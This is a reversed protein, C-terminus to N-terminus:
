KAPPDFSIKYPFFNQVWQDKYIRVSDIQVIIHVRALKAELSDIRARLSDLPTMAEAGGERYYYVGGNEVIVHLRGETASGEHQARPHASMTIAILLVTMFHM